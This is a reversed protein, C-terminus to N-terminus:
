YDISSIYMTGGRHNLVLYEPAVRSVSQSVHCSLPFSFATFSAQVVASELPTKIYHVCVYM